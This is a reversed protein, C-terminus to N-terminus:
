EADVEKSYADDFAICFEPEFYDVFEHVSVGDPLKKRGGFDEDIMKVCWERYECCTPSPTSYHKVNEKFVAKRGEARVMADLLINGKNEAMKGLLEQIKSRLAENERVLGEYDALFKEELTRYAM